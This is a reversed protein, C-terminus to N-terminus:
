KIVVVLYKSMKWFEDKDKIVIKDYRKKENKVIEYSSKPHNSLMLIKRSSKLSVEDLNRFDVKTFESAVENIKHQGGIGIFGGEKTIVGKKKLERKTGVVWYATHLKKDQKELSDKKLKNQSELENISMSMDNVKEDLKKIDINREQLQKKLTAIAQGKEEVEVSLQDVMKKLKSVKNGSKSMRTKLYNLKKRNDVLLTYIANIDGNIKTLDSEELEGDGSTTSSIINEKEKILALNEKIAAITNVYDDIVKRDEGSVKVLSDITAKQQKEKETEGCSFLFSVLLLIVLYKKM